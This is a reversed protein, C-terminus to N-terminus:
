LRQTRVSIMASWGGAEGRVLGGGPGGGAKRREGRGRGTEGVGPIYSPLVVRWDRATLAKGSEFGINRRKRRM